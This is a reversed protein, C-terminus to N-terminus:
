LVLFIGDFIIDSGTNSMALANSEVKVSGMSVPIQAAILVDPKVPELLSIHMKMEVISEFLLRYV